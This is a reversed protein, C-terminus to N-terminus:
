RPGAGATCWTAPEDCTPRTPTSDGLRCGAAGLLAAGVTVIAIGAFGIREGLRQLFKGGTKKPDTNRGNNGGRPTPDPDEPDLEDELIEDVKSM